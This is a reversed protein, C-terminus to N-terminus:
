VIRTNSLFLVKNVKDYLYFPFYLKTKADAEFSAIIYQKIRDPMVQELQISYARGVGPQWSYGSDTKRFVVGM